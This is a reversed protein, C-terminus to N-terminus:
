LFSILFAKKLYSAVSIDGGDRSSHSRLLFMLFVFCTRQFDQKGDRFFCAACYALGFNEPFFTPAGVTLIPGFPSQVGIKLARIAFKVM